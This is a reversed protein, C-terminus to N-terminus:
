PIYLLKSTIKSEIGSGTITDTDGQVYVYLEGSNINNTGDEFKVKSLKKRPINVKVFRCTQGSNRCLSYVRDYLIKYRSDTEDPDPYFEEPSPVLSNTLLNNNKYQIVIMRVNCDTSGTNKIYGRLQLTKPIIEDGQRNGNDDGQSMGQIVQLSMPTNDFINTSSGTHVERYSEGSVQSIKKIVKVQKKTFPLKKSYRLKKGRRGKYLLKM